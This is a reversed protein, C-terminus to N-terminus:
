ADARARTGIRAAPVGGVIEFGGVSRVVVANAAVVAGSGITVGKLIVAGAGIWVNDAIWIPATKFGSRAIPATLDGRLDHDQDRISVREAILCDRGATIAVKSTLTTWAGVFTNEGLDIRGGQAVITVGRSLHCGRQLIIEGGDTAQLKVSEAIHVGKGLVVGPCSCIAWARRAVFGAGRFRAAFWRFSRPLVALMGKM